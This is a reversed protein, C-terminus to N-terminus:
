MQKLRISVSSEWFIIITPEQKCAFLILVMISKNKGMTHTEIKPLWENAMEETEARDEDTYM